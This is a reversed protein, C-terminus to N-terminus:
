EVPSLTIQIEEDGVKLATVQVRDDPGFNEELWPQVQPSLVLRAQDTPVLRWVASKKDVHGEYKVVVPRTETRANLAFFPWHNPTLNVFGRRIHLPKLVAVYTFQDLNAADSPRRITTEEIEALSQEAAQMSKTRAKTKAKRAQGTLLRTLPMLGVILDSFYKLVTLGMVSARESKIRFSLQLPVVWQSESNLFAAKEVKEVATEGEFATVTDKFLDQYHTASGSEENYEMQQVRLTWDSGLGSVLAQFALIDAEAAKWAKQLAVKNSIALVMEMNLPRAFFALYAGQEPKENAALYVSQGMRDLGHFPFLTQVDRPLTFFLADIFQELQGLAFNIAAEEGAWGFATFVPMTLGTFQKNPLM